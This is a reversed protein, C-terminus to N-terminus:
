DRDANTTAAIDALLVTADNDVADVRKFVDNLLTDFQEDSLEGANALRELELLKAEASELRNLMDRHHLMWGVFDFEATM